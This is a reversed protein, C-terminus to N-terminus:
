MAYKAEGKKDLILCGADLMMNKIRKINPCENYCPCERCDYAENVVMNKWKIGLGRKKRTKICITITCDGM